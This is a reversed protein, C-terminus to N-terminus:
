THLCPTNVKNWSRGNMLKFVFYKGSLNRIVITYINVSKKESPYKKCDVADDKDKAHDSINEETVDDDRGSTIKNESELIKNLFIYKQPYAFWKTV